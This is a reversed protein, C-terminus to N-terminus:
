RSAKRKATIENMERILAGLGDNSLPRPNLADVLPNHQQLDRQGRAHQLKEWEHELEARAATHRRQTEPDPGESPAFSDTDVPVFRELDRLRPPAVDPMQKGWKPMTM